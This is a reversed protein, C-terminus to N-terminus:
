VESPLRSLFLSIDIHLLSLVIPTYQLPYWFRRLCFCGASLGWKMRTTWISTNNQILLFPCLQQNLKSWNYKFSIISQSPTVSTTTIKNRVLHAFYVFQQCDYKLRCNLMEFGLQKDTIAVPLGGLLQYDDHHM